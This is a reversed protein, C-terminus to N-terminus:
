CWSCFFFYYYYDSAGKWYCIVTDNRSAFNEGHSSKSSM